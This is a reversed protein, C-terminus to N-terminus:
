LLILRMAIWKWERSKNESPLIRNAHERVAQKSAGWISSSNQGSSLNLEFSLNSITIYLVATNFKENKLLIWTYFHFWCQSRVQNSSYNNHIRDVSYENRTM